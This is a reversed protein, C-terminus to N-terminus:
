GTCGAMLGPPSCNDPTNASVNSHNLQVMGSFTYVGGGYSGSQGGLVTNNAVTSHNYIGRGFVNGSKANVTTQNLTLTGSYDNCIGNGYNSARNNTIVSQYLSLTGGNNIGGGNGDPDSGNANGHTVALHALQVTAGSSVTLTTASDQGDLVAAGQGLLSLNKDIVFHGQCTGTVLLKTGPAANGIATQLSDSSCDVKASTAAAATGSVAFASVGVLVLGAGTVAMFRRSAKLLQKPTKTMFTEGEYDAAM